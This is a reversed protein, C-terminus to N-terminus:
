RFCILSRGCRRLAFALAGRRGFAVPPMAVDVPAVGHEGTEGDDETHHEDDEDREEEITRPADIVQDGIL